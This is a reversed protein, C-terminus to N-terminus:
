RLPADRCLHFAGTGSRQGGATDWTPTGSLRKSTSALISTSCSTRVKSSTLRSGPLLLNREHPDALAAFMRPPPAQSYVWVQQGRPGAGRHHHNSTTAHNWRSPPSRVAVDACFVCKFQSIIRVPRYFHTLFFLINVEKHGGGYLLHSEAM